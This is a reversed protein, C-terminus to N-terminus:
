RRQRGELERVLANTARFLTDLQHAYCYQDIWGALGYGDTGVTADGNENNIASLYGNVWSMNAIEGIGRTRRDEIWSGCSGNGKGLVETALVPIATTTLALAAGFLSATIRAPM